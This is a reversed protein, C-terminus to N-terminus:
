QERDTACLLAPILCLDYDIHRDRAQQNASDPKGLTFFLTFKRKIKLTKGTSLFNAIQTIKKFLRTSLKPS